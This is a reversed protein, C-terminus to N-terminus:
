QSPKKPTCFSSHQFLVPLYVVCVFVVVSVHIFVKSSLSFSPGEWIELLSVLSMSIRTHLQNLPVILRAGHTRWLAIGTCILQYLWLGLSNLKHLWFERSCFNYPTFLLLSKSMCMHRTHTHTYSTTQNECSSRNWTKIQCTDTKCM